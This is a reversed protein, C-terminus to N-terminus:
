DSLYVLASIILPNPSLPNKIDSPLFGILKNLVAVPNKPSKALIQYFIHSHNFKISNLNIDTHNLIVNLKFILFIM